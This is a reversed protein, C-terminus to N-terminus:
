NWTELWLTIAERLNARAEELSDGHTICGPLSPCEAIFGGDEDDRFTVLYKV